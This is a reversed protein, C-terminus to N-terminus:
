KREQGSPAVLPRWVSSARPLAPDDYTVLSLDDVSLRVRVAAAALESRVVRELAPGAAAGTADGIVLYVDPDVGYRHTVGVGACGARVGALASCPDGDVVPWGMLVVRGDGVAFGRDHLPLGRSLMRRDSPAFGGFQITLPSALVAHLHAALPEPDFPDPARELGILTAHVQAADRPVFAGGLHAAALAQIRTVLRDLGDPLREYWAVVTSRAPNV